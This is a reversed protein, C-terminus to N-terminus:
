KQRQAIKEHIEFQEGACGGCKRGKQCTWKHDCKRVHHPLIRVCSMIMSRVIVSQSVSRRLRTSQPTDRPPAAAAGAGGGGPEQHRGSDEEQGPIGAGIVAYYQSQQGIM